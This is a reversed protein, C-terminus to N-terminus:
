CSGVNGIADACCHSDAGGGEPFPYPITARAHTSRAIARVQRRGTTKVHKPPQARITPLFHDSGDNSFCPSAMAAASVSLQLTTTFSSRIVRCAQCSVCFVFCLVCFVFCLVCFVFCLVCFVFCLVCFVFCMVCFVFCLDCFVFCLVCFVFCLVCFVFCLVCFV